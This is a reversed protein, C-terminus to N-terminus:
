KTNLPCGNNDVPGPVTVCKDYLDIVGDLDLDLAVGAGDVRAGAPTDLQRDWDDCVGDNDKDGKECVVFDNSAEELARTKNYIDQLPDVWALNASQKGIKFNIALNASVANDSRKPNLQTYTARAPNYDNPSAWGSGDFEDDGSLLYMTRIELDILKSVNYKLGLGFNYSFSKIGLEQEIVLPTRPPSTSQRFEGKDILETNYSLFGGGVYGHFSWKFASPNDVRRMLNSFNIDALVGIQKFKTFANAVGSRENLFAQQNTKGQQYFASLGFTHSIQKNISAFGNWGWNTKGDYFSNLDSHVMFASGGALTVSWDSFLKSKNTFKETKESGSSFTDAQSTQSFYLVPLIATLLILKKKM